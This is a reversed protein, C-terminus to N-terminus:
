SDDRWEWKENVLQNTYREILEKSLMQDAISRVARTLSIEYGREPDWEDPWSVKAREKAEYVANIHMFTKPTHLVTVTVYPREYEAVIEVSSNNADILGNIAEQLRGRRKTVKAIEENMGQIARRRADLLESLVDSRTNM